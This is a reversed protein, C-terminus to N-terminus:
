AGPNVADRRTLVDKAAAILEKTGSEAVFVEPRGTHAVLRRLVEVAENGTRLMATLDRAHHEMAPDPRMPDLQRAKVPRYTWFSTGNDEDELPKPAVMIGPRDGTLAELLDRHTTPNYAVVVGAQDNWTNRKGIESLIRNVAEFAVGPKRFCADPVGLFEEISDWVHVEAGGEVARDISEEPTNKVNAPAHGPQDLYVFGWLEERPKLRGRKPASLCVLMAFHPTRKSKSHRGATRYGIVKGRYGKGRKAETVAEESGFEPRLPKEIQRSSM